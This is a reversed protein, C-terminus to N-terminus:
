GAFPCFGKHLQIFCRVQPMIPPLTERLCPQRAQPLDSGSASAFRSVARVPNLRNELGGQLGLGLPLRVPTATQHRGTLADALGSDAIKPLAMIELRM